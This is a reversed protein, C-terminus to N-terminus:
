YIRIVPTFVEYSEGNTLKYILKFQQMQKPNPKQTLKITFFQDKLQQNTESIYQAAPKDNITFANTLTDGPQFNNNFNGLAVLYINAVKEESGDFGPAACDTAYAQPLFSFGTNAKSYYTANLYGDLYFNAYAVSDQNYLTIPGSTSKAGTKAMPILRVGTVDFFRSGDCKTRNCALQLLPFLLLLLFVKKM